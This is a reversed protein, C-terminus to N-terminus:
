IKELSSDLHRVFANEIADSSQTIEADLFNKIGALQHADTEDDCEIEATYLLKM